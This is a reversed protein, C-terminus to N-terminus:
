AVGRLPLAPLASAPLPERDELARVEDITLFGKDLGIAYSEYRTKLDTRLFAAANFKAYQGRPVLTNMARELRGLWPQVSYKLLSLDRFEVNAYTQSQGSGAAVMEPPVGYIRCVQAVNFRMTDLFQSEEPNISIADFKGRHGMHGRAKPQPLAFDEPQSQIVDVKQAPNHM